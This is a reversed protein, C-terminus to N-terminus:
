EQPGKMPAEPDRIALPFGTLSFYETIERMVADPTGNGCLSVIEIVEIRRASKVRSRNAIAIIEERSLVERGGAAAAAAPALTSEQKAM